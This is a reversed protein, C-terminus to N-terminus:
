RLVESVASGFTAVLTRSLEERAQKYRQPEGRPSWPYPQFLETIFGSQTRRLSLWRPGQARCELIAPLSPRSCVFGERQAYALVLSELSGADQASVAAVHVTAGSFSDCAALSLAMAASLALRAPLRCM